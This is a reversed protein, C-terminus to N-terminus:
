FINEGEAEGAIVTQENRLLLGNESLYTPGQQTIQVERVAVACYKSM